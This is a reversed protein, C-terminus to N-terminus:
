RWAIAALILSMGGLGFSLLLRLRGWGPMDRVLSGTRADGLPTLLLAAGLILLAAVLGLGIWGGRWAKTGAQWWERM